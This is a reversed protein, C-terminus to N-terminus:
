VGIVGSVPDKKCASGCAIVLTKLAPPRFMGQFAPALCTAFNNAEKALAALLKSRDDLTIKDNPDTTRKDTLHAIQTNLKTKLHGLLELHAAAYTGDTFDKAKCGQKNEFFEILLRAHICFSEILANAIITDHERNALMAHTGQLMHFEYPLHHGLIDKNAAKRTGM